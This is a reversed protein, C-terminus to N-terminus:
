HNIGWIDLNDDRRAHRFGDFAGLRYLCLGSTGLIVFTIAVVLGRLAIDQCICFGEHAVQRLAGLRVLSRRELGVRKTRKGNEPLAVRCFKLTNPLPKPFGANRATVQIALHLLLIKADDM